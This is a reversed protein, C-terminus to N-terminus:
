DGRRRALAWGYVDKFIGGFCAALELLRLASAESESSWSSGPVLEFDLAAVLFAFFALTSELSAGDVLVSGLM